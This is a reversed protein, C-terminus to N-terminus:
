WRINVVGGRRPSGGGIVGRRDYLREPTGGFSEGLVDRIFGIGQRAMVLNRESQRGLRQCIHTIEARLREFDARLQQPIKGMLATLNVDGNIQFVAALARVLRERISALRAAERTPDEKQAVITTIATADGIMLKPALQESLTLLRKQAALESELHKRLQDLLTTVTAASPQNAPPNPLPASM